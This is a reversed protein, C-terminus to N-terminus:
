APTLKFTGGGGFGLTTGFAKTAQMLMNAFQTDAQMQLQAIQILQADGALSNQINQQIMTQAAATVQSDINAVMQSWRTDSEPNKIGQNFMAQRAANVANQRMQTLSAQQATNLNSGQNALATANAEAAGLGAPLKPGGMGLSLALPAVGAALRLPSVDGLGLAKMIGGGGGSAFSPNEYAAVAPDATVDAGIGPGQAMQNWFGSTSADSGIGGPPGFAQDIAALGSDPALADSGLALADAPLDAAGPLFALADAAGAGGADAGLAAAAGIDNIGLDAALGGAGAAGAGIDAAAFGAGIDEIGLDVALGGGVAEAGLDAAGLAGLGAGIEPLLWPAAVALAAAGTEAWEAPHNAFSSPAHALDTGLNGFNGEFLDSLFSMREVEL